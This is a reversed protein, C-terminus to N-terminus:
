DITVSCRSRIGVRRSRGHPPRANALAADSQSRCALRREIVFYALADMIRDRQEAPLRWADDEVMAVLQDLRELWPRVFAPLDNALSKHVLERVAPLIWGREAKRARLQAEQFPTRFRALDNEELDFKIALAM